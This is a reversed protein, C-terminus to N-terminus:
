ALDKWIIEKIAPIIDHPMEPKDADFLRIFASRNAIYHAVPWVIM